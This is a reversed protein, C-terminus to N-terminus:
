SRVCLREFARGSLQETRWGLQSCFNGTTWIKGGEAVATYNATQTVTLLFSALGSSFNTCKGIESM